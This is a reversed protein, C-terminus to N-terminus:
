STARVIPWSVVNGDMSSAVSSKVPRIPSQAGPNLQAYMFVNLQCDSV